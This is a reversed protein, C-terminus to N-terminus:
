PKPGEKPPILLNRIEPDVPLRQKRRAKRIDDDDVLRNILDRLDSLVAKVDKIAESNSRVNEGQLTAARASEALITKIMERQDVTESKVFELGYYVVIVVAASSGLGGILNVWAAVDM